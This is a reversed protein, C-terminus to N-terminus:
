CIMFSLDHFIHPTDHCLKTNNDEDTLLITIFRSCRELPIGIPNFAGISLLVVADAKPQKLNLASQAATRVHRDLFTCGSFGGLPIYMQVM